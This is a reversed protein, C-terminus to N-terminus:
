VGCVIILPITIQPILRDCTLPLATASIKECVVSPEIALTAYHLIRKGSTSPELLWKSLEPGLYKRWSSSAQLFNFLLMVDGNNTDVWFILLHVTHKSKMLAPILWSDLLVAPQKLIWSSAFQMMTTSESSVTGLHCKNQQVTSLVQFLHFAHM